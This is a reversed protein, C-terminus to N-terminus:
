FHKSLGELVRLGLPRPTPPPREGLRARLWRLQQGMGMGALPTEVVRGARRLATAWGEVYPRSALAVVRDGPSTTRLISTRVVDDYWRRMPDGRPTDALSREYPVAEFEPPQAGYVASLILHPGGLRRAYALRLQYLPGTYLEVIPFSRKMEVVRFSREAEPRHLDCESAPRLDCTCRGLWVKQEVLEVRKRKGCGLVVLTM